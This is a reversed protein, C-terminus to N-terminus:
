LKELQTKKMMEEDVEEFASFMEVDQPSVQGPHVNPLQINDHQSTFIFSSCFSYLDCM